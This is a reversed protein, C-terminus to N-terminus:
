TLTFYTPGSDDYLFVVQEIPFVRLQPGLSFQSSFDPAIHVKALTVSLPDGLDFAPSGSVATLVCAQANDYMRRSIAGIKGLTPNMGLFAAKSGARWEMCTYRLIWDQGLWIGDILNRGWRDTSRILDGRETKALMPVGADGQKIGTAVGDLTMTYPGAALIENGVSV